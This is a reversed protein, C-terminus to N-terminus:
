LIWVLPFQERGCLVSFVNVSLVIKQKPDPEKNGWKDTEGHWMILRLGSWNFSIFGKVYPHYRSASCRPTDHPAGLNFKDVEKFITIYCLFYSGNLRIAM